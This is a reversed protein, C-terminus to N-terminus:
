RAPRFARGIANLAHKLRAVRRYPVGTRCLAYVALARLSRGARLNARAYELRAPHDVRYAARAIRDWLVVDWAPSYGLHKLFVRIDSEWARNGLTQWLSSSHVRYRAGVYPTFGFEYRRALRLWMDWDEYLLSEDYPGVAELCERRIMTTMAPVFNVELLQEFVNGEPPEDYTRFPRSREFYMVPLPNGDVDVQYADGYLVGVSPASRAMQEAQVAIKEPFWTDDTSVTSVYEGRARSLTENRTACVGQNETHLVLTCNTGTRELWERILQVSGDTSCDDAIILEINPYTQARISELSEIVFREHNFCTAIVTVLPLQQKRSTV